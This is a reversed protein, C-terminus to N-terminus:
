PDDHKDFYNNELNEGIANARVQLFNEATKFHSGDRTEKCDRKGETVDQFRKLLGEPKKGVRM